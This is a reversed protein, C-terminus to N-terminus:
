VHFFGETFVLNFLLLLGLAALPWLISAGEGSLPRASLLAPRRTRAAGPPRAPPPTEPDPPEPAPKSPSVTQRMREPPRDARAEGRSASVRQETMGCGGCAAAITSMIRGESIAEGTLEAIKRRDRLVVVRRSSRVVEELESSIFLIAMGERCLRDMLKAIEF